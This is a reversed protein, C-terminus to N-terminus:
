RLRRHLMGPFEATVSFIASESASGLYRTVIHSHTTVLFQNRSASDVMAKLLAKLAQPHVDNEPEELLFLKGDAVCLDTILAVLSAVGDGMAQLPITESNGVYVGPMQGVDSPVVGVKFGLVERCLREYTEGQSTTSSALRAVKATLNEFTGTVLNTRSLNVEESIKAVRRNALYTYIFNDPESNPFVRAVYQGGDATLIHREFNGSPSSRLFQVKYRGLNTTPASTLSLPTLDGHLHLDVSVADSGIRVDRPEFAVPSQLFQVARLITSKGSNNPGVFVNVSALNLDARKVSKLSEIEVRELRM